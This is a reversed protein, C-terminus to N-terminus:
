FCGGVRKLLDRLAKESLSDVTKGILGADASFINQLSVWSAKKLRKKKLDANTLALSLPKNKGYIGALILNKYRNYRGNSIVVAPRLKRESLDSFPFEIIVIDGQKM